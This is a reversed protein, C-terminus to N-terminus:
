ESIKLSKAWPTKTRFRDPVLLQMRWIQNKTHEQFASSGIFAQRCATGPRQAIPSIGKPSPARKRFPTHSLAQGSAPQLPYASIM